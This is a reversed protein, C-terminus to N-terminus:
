HSNQCTHWRAGVGAFTCISPSLIRKAASAAQQAGVSFLEGCGQLSAIALAHAPWGRATALHASVSLCPAM